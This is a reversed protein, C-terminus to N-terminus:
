LKRISTYYRMKHRHNGVHNLWDVDDALSIKFSAFLDIKNTQILLELDM